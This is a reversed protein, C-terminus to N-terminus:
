IYLNSLRWLEPASSSALVGPVSTDATDGSRADGRRKIVSCNKLVCGGLIQATLTRPGGAELKSFRVTTEQEASTDACM